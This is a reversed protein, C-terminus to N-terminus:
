LGALRKVIANELSAKQTKTILKKAFIADLFKRCLYFKYRIIAENDM